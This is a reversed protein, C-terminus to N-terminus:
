SAGTWDERSWRTRWSPRDPRPAEGRPVERVIEEPKKDERLGQFRPHRVMGDDTWEQFAIQAVLRPKVWRTDRSKPADRPIASRDTVVDKSLREWLERRMRDTFGTGVKGAYRWERGQRYALRLAGIAPAGTTIPTFGVIALEQALLVKVKSWDPHRVGSRYPSGRRKAIVGELGRRRVEVLAAELTGPVRESIQVPPDVNALLSELLDRREELPRGRLDEGDLWLLDFVVYRLEGEGRQLLQFRGNGEDDLAVIEGDLVAEATVIERLGKVVRPFQQSLDLANRSQLATRGGSIAALARYGDYKVEFVADADAVSQAESLVAKMPPWVKVLLSLPDPHAALLDKKRVPGRTVRRGSVVSEPREVTVDFDKSAHEDKGKFFLWQSRPGSAPGRTRILHWRGRLKGGELVFALHGKAMMEKERGPPDTRWLGRDWLLSDGGGYEDDPIRGEFEGYALPHDETQVALRRDTPDYSPGKPVAWSVLVGNMELRLDYHLRSADHKHVVFSHGGTKAPERPGPEPTVSFRRKKQYERLRASARTPKKKSPGM